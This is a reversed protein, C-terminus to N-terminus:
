VAKPITVAINTGLDHHSKSIDQKRMPPHIAGLSFFLGEDFCSAHAHVTHSLSPIRGDFQVGATRAAVNRRPLSHSLVALLDKCFRPLLPLAQSTKKTAEVITYTYM